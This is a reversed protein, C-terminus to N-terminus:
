KSKFNNTILELLQQRLYYCKNSIFYAKLKKEKTLKTLTPLSIDLIEAAKIRTVYETLNTYEEETLKEISFIVRVLLQDMEYKIESLIRNKINEPKM